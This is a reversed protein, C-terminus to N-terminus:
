KAPCKVFTQAYYKHVHKLKTYNWQITTLLNPIHIGSAIIRIIGGVGEQDEHLTLASPLNNNINHDFLLICVNSHYQKLTILTIIIYYHTKYTVAM